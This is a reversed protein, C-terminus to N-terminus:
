SITARLSDIYNSWWQMMDVREDWYETRNYAARVRNKESHALQREIVESRWKNSENLLSSAITRFGHACMEEKKYGLRRLAANLTNDSMARDKSRLSPFLYKSNTKLTLTEQLIAIAQESLPVWHDSRMKMKKAPILWTKNELDFESWEANRIEGPRVFLHPLLRLAQRTAFHGDYGDIDRLLYGIEKKDSLAARNTTVPTALANTLSSAPNFKCLGTIVAYDFVRSVFACTRKATEKIGLKEIKKLANLIEPAELKSIPITGLDPFLKKAFYRNKKITKPELQKGELNILFDECVSKFTNGAEHAIRHKKLKKELSPDNGENLLKKAEDRRSRAEKLSVEPYSGLALLKEKAAYRYKFRWLKSGTPTILVFLGGSDSLKYQKAKPPANRLTLDSLAM